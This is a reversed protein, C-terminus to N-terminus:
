ELLFHQWVFVFLFCSVDSRILSTALSYISFCVNVDGFLFVCKRQFAIFLITNGFIFGADFGFLKLNLVLKFLFVRTNFSVCVGVINGSFILCSLM